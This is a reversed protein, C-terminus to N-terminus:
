GLAKRRGRGAPTEIRYSEETSLNPNYFPDGSGLVESWRARFLEIDAPPEQYGRSASEVHRLVAHPTWVVARGSRRVRLCYDVDNLAIPLREDFGGLEEFISRPTLACAAGVASVDRVVSLLGMYGSGDAQGYFAHGVLGRLGIIVGGHQIKGNPFVLKAGVVGVGPHEAVGVMEDLWRPSIVETDNNLLLLYTGRSISAGVNILRSFNFPEDVRILSVDNRGGIVQGVADVTQATSGNDVLVVEITTRNAHRSQDLSQLCRELYPFQDRFPIIVSVHPPDDLVPVIHFRGPGIPEVAGSLGRRMLTRTLADQLRSSDTLPEQAGASPAPITGDSTRRHYMVRPIHSVRLNDRDALRLLLDYEQDNGHGPHFGGVTRADARRMVLLRGVYNTRLLLHPSWGPKFNPEFRGRGEEDLQDEDTYIVDPKDDVITRAVSSLARRDLIDGPDLFTIWPASFEGLVDSLPDSSNSLAPVYLLQIRPDAAYGECQAVFDPPQPEQLVLLLRWGTYIQSHVARLSEGLRSSVPGRVPVVIGIEPLAAGHEDLWVEIDHAEAPLLATERVHSEYDAGPANSVAGMFGRRAVYKKTRVALERFGYERLLLAAKVGLLLFRRLGRAETSERSLSGRGGRM